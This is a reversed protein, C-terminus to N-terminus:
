NYINIIILYLGEVILTKFLVIQLQDSPDFHNRVTM